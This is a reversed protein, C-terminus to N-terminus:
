YKGYDALIDLLKQRKDYHNVEYLVQKVDQNAAGVIGIELFLYDNSLFQSALEQVERPFTASFMLTQRESKPPMTAHEVMKEIDTKFGMDLLRDAEDLVLYHM